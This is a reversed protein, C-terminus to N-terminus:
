IHLEVGHKHTVRNMRKNVGAVIRDQRRFDFPVWWKLAPEEDIGKVVAFKATELSLSQKLYNLPM